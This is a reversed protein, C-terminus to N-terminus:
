RSRAAGPATVPGRDSAGPREGRAAEREARRAQREAREAAHVAEVRTFTARQTANLVAGIQQQTRAHLQEMAQRTADSRGQAFLTQMETAAAQLIRRVEAQQRTDLDLIATLM